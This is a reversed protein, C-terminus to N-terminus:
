ADPRLAIKTALWIALAPALAILARRLGSDGGGRLWLSVLIAAVLLLAGEHTFTLALLAAFVLALGTRTGPAYLCLALAPWFLAHSMWTETPAGFVLPCVMATSACAYSFLIRGPSRDAAFTAALGLAPAAFFLFGYLAIAARANGMWAALAEAPVHAFVYTFLRGSINHWHFAWSGQAAVAYSFISGDGYMQLRAALGIAVFALSWGGGMSVALVRLTSAAAEGSRAPKAAARLQTTEVTM